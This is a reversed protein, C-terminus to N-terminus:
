QIKTLIFIIKGIMSIYEQFNQNKIVDKNYIHKPIKNLKKKYKGLDGYLCIIRVSNDTEHCYFVHEPEVQTWSLIKTEDIPDQCHYECAGNKWKYPLSIVIINGTKLLKQTFSKAEQIHEIVQFCTVIDFKRDPKYTFFDQKLGIVKDNKIPNVIDLSVKTKIPLFSILDVGNSGIDIISEQKEDCIIHLIQKLAKIYVMKKRSNHYSGSM